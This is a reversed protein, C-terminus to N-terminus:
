LPSLFLVRLYSHQCLFGGLRSSFSISNSIQSNLPSRLDQLKSSWPDESDSSFSSGSSLTQQISFEMIVGHEAKERNEEYWVMELHNFGEGSGLNHDVEEEAKKLTARPPESVGSGDRDGM